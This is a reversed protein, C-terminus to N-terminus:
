DSNKTTIKSGLTIENNKITNEPLELIHNYKPNWFFLRNPKVTALKVVNLKKDLVVVDISKKLFFTHVGFRTKFILGGLNSKKIMGLLKDSLSNAEKLNNCIQTNKNLNIVKM